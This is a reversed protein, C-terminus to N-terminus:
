CRVKSILTHIKNARAGKGTQRKAFIIERRTRRDRCVKLNFDRLSDMYVNHVQMAHYRNHTRVPRNNYSVAKNFEHRLRRRVAPHLDRVYHSSQLANSVNKLHKYQSRFLKKSTPIIRRRKTLDTHVTKQKRRRSRRSM